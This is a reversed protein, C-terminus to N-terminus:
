TQCQKSNTMGDAVVASLLVRNGGLMAIVFAPGLLVDIREFTIEPLKLQPLTNPIAGYTFWNHWKDMLSIYAAVVSSVVIGVLPGPVKPLVKPTILIVALCLVAILISYVNMTNLHSAIEKM